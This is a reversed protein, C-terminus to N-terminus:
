ADIVDATLEMYEGKVLVDPGKLFGFLRSNENLSKLGDFLGAIVNHGGPAQGGSLIVGVNIAAKKEGCGPAFTLVPSGFTGKFLAQIKEVDAVATTAGGEQVCVAAGKQLAAPLKPAYAARAQQLPSIKSM